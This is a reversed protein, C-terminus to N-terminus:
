RFSYAPHACDNVVVYHVLRKARPPGFGSAPKEIPDVSSPLQDHPPLQAHFQIGVLGEAKPTYISRAPTPDHNQGVVLDGSTCVLELSGFGALGVVTVDDGDSLEAARPEEKGIVLRQVLVELVTTKYTVTPHVGCGVVGLEPLAM